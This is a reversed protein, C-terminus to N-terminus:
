FPWIKLLLITHTCTCAVDQRHEQVSQEGWAKGVHVELDQHTEELKAEHSNEERVGQHTAVGSCSGEGDHDCLDLKEKTQQPIQSGNRWPWENSWLRTWYYKKKVIVSYSTCTCPHIAPVHLKLQEFKASFQCGRFNFGCFLNSQAIHFSLKFSLMDVFQFIGM